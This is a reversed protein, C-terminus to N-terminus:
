KLLLMKKVSVFKDTRLEYIYMGTAVNGADWQYSYRGAELKTNVVVGIKEGLTNYISLTVEAAEPLSFKITTTPNFPNPYNQELAYEVPTVLGDSVVILKNVTADNITVQEGPNIQANVAAGTVDQLTLTMNEVRVSLPYQVGSLEITQGNSLDEAMRGSSFRIDFSGTPPAPPLEYKDLEVQGEVAYLTYNIGSADTIIIKGWDESFQEAVEGSVKGIPAPGLNTISGPGTSKVWYAYGPVINPAPTYGGSYQFISGTIIGPPSTVLSATPVTNEYGGVLNWGTVLPVGSHTVAQIGAYNYVQAGLNKMWYGETPTAVTVPVYGAVYKFVGAAPDKGSWWTTVNQNVPHLGPASVM